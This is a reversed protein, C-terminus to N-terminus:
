CRGPGPGAAAAAGEPRPTPGATSVPALAGALREGDLAPFRGRYEEARPVDGARQRYEIEVEILEHLLAHREPEPLGRLHDEIAPRGGAKWAAEFRRCVGEAHLLLPAPLHELTTASKEEM